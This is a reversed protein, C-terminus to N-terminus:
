DRAPNSADAPTVRREKSIVSRTFPPHKRSRVRLHASRRVRGPRRTRGLLSHIRRQFMAFDAKASQLRWAPARRVAVLLGVSSKETARRTRPMPLHLAASRRFSLGPSHLISGAASACTRPVGCVAPGGLGRPRVEVRGRGRGRRGEGPGGTRPPPSRTTTAAFENARAAVNWRGRRHVSRPACWPEPRRVHTADPISDRM